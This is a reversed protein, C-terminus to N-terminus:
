AYGVSRTTRVMTPQSLSPPGDSDQQQAQAVSRGLVKNIVEDLPLGIPAGGPAESRWSLPRRAGGGSGGGKGGSGPLKLRLGAVVGHIAAGGGATGSGLSDSGLAGQARASHRWKVDARIHPEASRLGRQAASAM